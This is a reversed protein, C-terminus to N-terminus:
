DKVCERTTIPPGLLVPTWTVDELHYGPECTPGPPGQPGQVGAPGPEGQPGPPGPEGQPGQPGVEGQPGTPGIPGALGAPGEPGQSGQPGIPGAVGQPGQSGIPGAPGQAGTDGQLGRPGEAGAPGEPGPVQGILEEPPPPVPEGKAIAEDRRKVYDDVLINVDDELPAVAENVRRDGTWSFYVTMLGTWIVFAIAGIVWPRYPSGNSVPQPETPQM